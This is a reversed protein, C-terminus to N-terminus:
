PAEQEKPFLTMHKELSLAGGGNGERGKTFFDSM